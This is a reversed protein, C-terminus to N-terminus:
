ASLLAIADEGHNSLGVANPLRKVDFMKGLAAVIDLQDPEFRQAVRVPRTPAPLLPLSTRPSMGLSQLHLLSSKPTQNRHM